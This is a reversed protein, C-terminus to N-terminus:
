GYWRTYYRKTPNKKKWKAVWKHYEETYRSKKKHGCGVCVFREYEHFGYEKFFSPEKRETWWPTYYGTPEFETTWVYVHAKGDNGTCGTHKVPVKEKKKPRYNVEAEFDEPEVGGRRYNKYPDGGKNNECDWCM